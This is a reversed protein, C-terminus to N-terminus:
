DCRVSRNTKQQESDSSQHNSERKVRAHHQERESEERAFDIQFIV